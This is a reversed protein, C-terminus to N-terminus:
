AYDRLGAATTRDIAALRRRVDIAPLPQAKAFRQVPRRDVIPAPNNALWWNPDRAAGSGSGAAVSYRRAFAYFSSVIALRLNHTAAAVPRQDRARPRAAWAQTIALQAADLPSDLDRGARELEARFDLLTARYEAVTRASQSRQLKAHLWAAILAELTLFQDGGRASSLAGAGAAGGQPVIARQMVCRGSGVSAHSIDVQQSN